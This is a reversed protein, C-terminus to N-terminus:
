LIAPRCPILILYLMAMAAVVTLFGDFFEGMLRALGHRQSRFCVGRFWTLAILPLLQYFVSSSALSSASRPMM